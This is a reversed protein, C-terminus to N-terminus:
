CIHNLKNVSGFRWKIEINYGMTDEFTARLGKFSAYTLIYDARNTIYLAGFM